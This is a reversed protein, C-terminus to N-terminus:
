ICKDIGCKKLSYTLGKAKCHSCERDIMRKIARRLRKTEERELKLYGKFKKVDAKLKRIQEELANVLRTFLIERQTKKEKCYKCVWKKEM